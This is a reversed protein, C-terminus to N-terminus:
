NASLVHELGVRKEEMSRRGTDTFRAAGHLAANMSSEFAGSATKQSQGVKKRPLLLSSSVVGGLKNHNLPTKFCLKSM